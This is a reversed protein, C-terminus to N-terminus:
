SFVFPCFSFFDIVIVLWEDFVLPVKDLKMIQLFTLIVTNQEMHM